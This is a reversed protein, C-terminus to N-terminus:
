HPMIAYKSNTLFVPRSPVFGQLVELVAISCSESKGVMTLMTLQIPATYM